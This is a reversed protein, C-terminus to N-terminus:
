ASYEKGQWIVRTKRGTPVFLIPDIRFLHSKTSYEILTIGQQWDVSSAFEADLKCLCGGEYCAVLGRRTRKVAFGMRHCHGTVTTISFAERNLERWGSRTSHMLASSGHKIVIRDKIIHEGNKARTIGLEEFRLLNEWALARLGYLGPNTWILRRLRDEHNGPIWVLDCEDGAAQKIERTNALWIDIEDQLTEKRKPNKDFTSLKYCDLGDSGLVVTDPKIVEILQCALDQARPDRFPDHTDTVFVTRKV